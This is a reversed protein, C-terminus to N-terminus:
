LGYIMEQIMLYHTSFPYMMFTAFVDEIAIYTIGEFIENMAKPGFYILISDESEFSQLLDIKNEIKKKNDTFSVQAYVNKGEIGIGAIDIKPQTGGVKLLPAIIVGFVKLYESCIVELEGSTLSTVEEPLPKDEYICQLIKYAKPWRSITSRIPRITNLIKYKNFPIEKVNELQVIKYWYGEINELQIQSGAKIEGLYLSAANITPYDAAIIFGKECFKLLITLASKGSTGYDEPNISEKNEFAIAIKKKNFLKENLKENDLKHRIYGFEV